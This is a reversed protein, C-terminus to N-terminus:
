PDVYGLSAARDNAEDTPPSLPPVGTLAERHQADPKGLTLEGRGPRRVWKGSNTIVVADRGALGSPTCGPACDAECMGSQALLYARPSISEGRLLAPVDVLGVLGPEVRPAIDPAWRVLPVRLVHDSISREHQYSCREEELVEGHDATVVIRAGRARLKELLPALIADARQVEEGYRVRETSGEGEYPGHPEYVHVWLLAPRDEPSGHSRASSPWRESREGSEPGDFVDWGRRMGGEPGAPYASVFAAKDWGEFADPVVPVGAKLAYGHHNNAQAGHSWPDLGTLMTAHAPTTLGMPSFANEYREGEEALRWVNPAHEETLFDARWTDITVLAVVPPADARQGESEGKPAGVLQCGLFWMLM